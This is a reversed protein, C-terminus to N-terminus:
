INRSRIEQHNAVEEFTFAGRSCLESFLDLAIGLKGNKCCGDILVTYLAVNPHIGSNIIIGFFSLAENVRHNKCLGDLLVSYTIFNPTLGVSQM